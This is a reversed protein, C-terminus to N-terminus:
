ATIDRRTTTLAAVALSAAALAVLVATGGRADGPAFGLGTAGLSTVASGPMWRDGVPWALAIIPEVALVWILVIVVAAVQVRILGGLGVGIVAALAFAVASGLLQLVAASGILALPVQGILDLTVIVACTLVSLLALLVGAGAAATAKALLLSVRNPHAILTSSISLHRFEGSSVIVGLLLAFLWGSGACDVLAAVASRDVIAGDTPLFVLFVGLTALSLLLGGGLLAYTSRVSRLKIVEAHLQHRWAHTAGATAMASSQTDSM